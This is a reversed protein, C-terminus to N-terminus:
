SLKSEGPGSDESLGRVAPPFPFAIWPAYLAGNILTMSVALSDIDQGFLRLSFNSAQLLMRGSGVCPDNVSLTRPDRGDERSPDHRLMQVMGEVVPHPTPYFGTPNWGRAKGVAVHEGLYDHPTELLPRLDVQRYVREHLKDPWPPLTDSVALAWSLWELLSRFDSWGGCDWCILCAWQHLLTFVRQDAPGFTIQPIPEELLKGAELTRLYYGWRNSTAPIQAHLGIVYPLLWGRYKWPPPDDGLQPL